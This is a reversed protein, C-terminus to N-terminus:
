GERNERIVRAPVGVVVVAEAVDGHVLAGAGVISWDGIRRRPMVNAGLGVLTGEGVTVEGGLRAGPAIHVHAGISNHHDVSCGTNLIVNAGITSGPNVIVGPCVITGPGLFVDPAVIAGPHKAVAFQEGGRRLEEFLRKRTGNDGIAVLLADHAIDPIAALGALVPLGLPTRGHLSRDDDVYGIPQVAEGADHARQLTDAVVAAHGGAGVILVRLM